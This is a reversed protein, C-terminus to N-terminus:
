KLVPIDLFFNKTKKSNQFLFLCNQWHFSSLVHTCTWFLKHFLFKKNSNWLFFPCTWSMQDYQALSAKEFKVCIVLVSLRQRHRLDLTLNLVDPIDTVPCGSHWADACQWRFVSCSPCLNTKHAKTKKQHLSQQQAGERVVQGPSQVFCVFLFLYIFSAAACNDIKTTAIKCHLQPKCVAVYGKFQSWRTSLRERCFFFSLHKWHPVIKCLNPNILKSRKKVSWYQPSQTNEGSCTRSCMILRWGSLSRWRSSMWADSSATLRSSEATGSFKSWTFWSLGKRQTEQRHCLFQQVNELTHLNQCSM